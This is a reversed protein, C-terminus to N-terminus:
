ITKELLAVVEGKNPLSPMAGFRSICVYASATSFKLVEPIPKGELLGTVFSATFCDGVILFYTGAGTTDVIPMDEFKFANQTYINNEKDIYLCGHAGLKLLLNLDKNNSLNRMEHLACIIEDKNQVDVTKNLIRKLETKNPSIVDLLSLLEASLPLDAGGM